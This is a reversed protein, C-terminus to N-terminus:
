KKNQKIKYNLPCHKLFVCHFCNSICLYMDSIHTSTLFRAGMGKKALVCGWTICFDELNVDAKTWWRHLLFNHNHCIPWLKIFSYSSWHWTQKQFHELVIAILINELVIPSLWLFVGPLEHVWSTQQNWNTWFINLVITWQHQCSKEM